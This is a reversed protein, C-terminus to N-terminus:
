YLIIYCYHTLNRLHRNILTLFQDYPAWGFWFWKQTKTSAHWALLLELRYHAWVQCYHFPIHARGGVRYHTACLRGYLTPVLGRSQRGRPSLFHSPVRTTKGICWKQGRRKFGKVNWYRMLSKFILRLITSSQCVNDHHVNFGHSSNAWWTYYRCSVMWTIELKRNTLPYM